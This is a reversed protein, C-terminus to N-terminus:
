NNWERTCPIKLFMDQLAQGELSALLKAYHKGNLSANTTSSVISNTAQDYFEQWPPISLQAV